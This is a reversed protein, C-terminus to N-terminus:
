GAIGGEILPVHRAADRKLLGTFRPDDVVEVKQAYPLFGSRVYFGLARSHDFTCTHVWFRNIPQTWAKEIARGMLWQAAGSGFLGETVGFFALECEGPVRFDLELIGRQGDPASLEFLEVDASRIIGLLTEDSMALRSFWLWDEGVRRYLKRYADASPAEIRDLTWASADGPASTGQLPARMELYTVIAALKGAEIDHLGNALM